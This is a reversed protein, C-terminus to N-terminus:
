LYILLDYNLRLSILFYILRYQSFVNEALFFVPKIVQPFYLLDLITVHSLYLFVYLAKVNWLGVQTNASFLMNPVEGLTRSCSHHDFITVIM